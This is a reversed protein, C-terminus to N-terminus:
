ILEEAARLRLRAEFTPSGGESWMDAARVFNRDLCAFGLSKWQPFPANDLIERLEAEYEFAVSTILFDFPLAFAADQPHSRAIGVLERALARAEDVRGRREFAALVAALNPLLEQPDSAARALSLSGEFDSL